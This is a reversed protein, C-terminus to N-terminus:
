HRHFPPSAADGLCAWAGAKQSLGAQDGAFRARSLGGVGVMRALGALGLADHWRHRCSVLRRSHAVSFAACFQDLACQGPARYVVAGTQSPLELPTSFMPSHQVARLM